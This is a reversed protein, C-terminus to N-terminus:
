RSGAGPGARLTLVVEGDRVPAIGGRQVDVAFVRGDSPGTWGELDAATGRGEWRARGRWAGAGAGAPAREVEAPEGLEATLTAALRRFASEAEAGAPSRLRIAGLRGQEDFLFDAQYARGGLEWRRAKALARLGDVELGHAGLIRAASPASVLVEEVSM